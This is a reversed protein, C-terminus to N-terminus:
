KAGRDRKVKKRLAHPTLNEYDTRGQHLAATTYRLYERFDICVLRCSETLSYATAAWKGADESGVFLYNKRGIVMPRVSNEAANNDIPLSGSSLYVQLEERLNQVYGIARYMATGPVLSLSEEDIWQWISDMIPKSYEKRRKARLAIEDKQALRGKKVDKNVQREVRYLNNIRDFIVLAKPDKEKAMPEFKRRAHAWCAMLQAQIIKEKKAKGYASYGDAMLYGFCSKKDYASYMPNNKLDNEDFSMMTELEKHSRTAGFHFCCANRNRFLWFYGKKYNKCLKNNKNRYNEVMTMPSEDAHVFEDSVSELRIANYIPAYFNSFAKVADSLISSSLGAGQRNFDQLQRYLPLAMLYKDHILEHIFGDTLKGKDIIAPYYTTRKYDRSKSDGLIPRKITVEVVRKPRHDIRTSTEYGIISLREGDPGILEDESPELIIEETELKLEVVPKRRRKSKKPKAIDEGVVEEGPVEELVPGHPLVSADDKGQTNFISLQNEPVPKSKESKSGYLVRKYNKLQDELDKNKIALARNKFRLTKVEDEIPIFELAESM